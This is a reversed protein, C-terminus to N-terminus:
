ISFREIKFIFSRAPAFLKRRLENRKHAEINKIMSVRMKFGISANLLMDMRNTINVM